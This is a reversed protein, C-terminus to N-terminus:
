VKQLARAYPTRDSVGHLLHRVSFLCFNTRPRMRLCPCAPYNPHAVQPIHLIEFVLELTIVICRGQIQTVFQPTSTDFDHMNSYFEQIIVTPCSVPIQCLSEWGQSHIVTPLTTDSFDLLIVHHKSHVGCKSFNESFDKRAKEDRFQVYLPTPDSSSTEFHIPNQSLTSKHKPAMHLKNSLSFSFFLFCLM